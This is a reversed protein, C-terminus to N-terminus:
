ATSNERAENDVLYESRSLELGWILEEEVWADESNLSGIRVQPLKWSGTRVSGM